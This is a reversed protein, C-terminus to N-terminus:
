NVESKKEAFKRDYGVATKDMLAFGIDSRFEFADAMYQVEREEKEQIRNIKEEVTDHVPNEANHIIIDCVKINVELPQGKASEFVYIPEYSGQKSLPLERNFAIEGPCWRELIFREKIYSYKPTLRTETIERLFIDGYYDNYTGHRWERQDDSFVIRYLQENRSNKGYRELHKNINEITEIM